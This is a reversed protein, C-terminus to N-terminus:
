LQLSNFPKTNLLPRNSLLYILKLIKSKNTTCIRTNKVGIPETNPSVVMVTVCNKATKPTLITPKKIISIKFGISALHQLSLYIAKIM